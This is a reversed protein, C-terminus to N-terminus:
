ATAKFCNSASNLEAISASIARNSFSLPDLEGMRLKLRRKVAAITLKSIDRSWVKVDRHNARYTTVAVPDNDVAGIVKFGARKLGVTLGGCGCFLDIASIDM